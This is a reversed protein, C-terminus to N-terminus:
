EDSKERARKQAERVEQEADLLAARARERRLKLEALKADAVLNEAAERAKKAQNTYHFTPKAGGDIAEGALVRGVARHDVADGSQLAPTIIPETPHRVFLYHCGGVFKKGYTVIFALGWGAYVIPHGFAVTMYLAIVFVFVLVLKSDEFEDGAAEPSKSAIWAVVFVPVTALLLAIWDMDWTLYPCYPARGPYHECSAFGYFARGLWIIAVEIGLGIGIAGLQERKM